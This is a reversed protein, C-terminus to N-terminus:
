GAGLPTVCLFGFLGFNEQDVVQDITATLQTFLEGAPTQHAYM